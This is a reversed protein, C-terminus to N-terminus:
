KLEKLYEGLFFYWADTDDNELAVSLEREYVKLWDRKEPDFRTDQILPEKTTACSCIFILLCFLRM